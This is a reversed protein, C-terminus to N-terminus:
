SDSAFFTNILKIITIVECYLNSVPSPILPTGVVELKWAFIVPEQSVCTSLM